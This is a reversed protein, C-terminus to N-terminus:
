HLFHRIISEQLQGEIDQLSVFDESNNVKKQRLNYVYTICVLFKFCANFLPTTKFFNM